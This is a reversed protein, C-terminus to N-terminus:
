VTFVAGTSKETSVMARFLEDNTAHNEFNTILMVKRDTQSYLLRRQWSYFHPGDGINRIYGMLQRLLVATFKVDSLCENAYFGEWKGHERSRLLGDASQYCEAAKGTLYFARMYEGRMFSEYAECFCVAGKLCMVHLKVQLSVSDLWLEPDNLLAAIEDCERELLAFDCLGDACKEWFWGIQGAFPIDGAAWQLTEVCGSTEGKMWSSCFARTTYAYFQEGAHEDEFEGYPVTCEAYRDYCDAMRSLLEPTLGRGYYRGTYEIKYAGADLGGNKWLMAVAELFYVHPKVNSCNVVLFDDAGNAFAGSLERSVFDASNPLMTIHNAAQLDYFSVHYYIGQPGAAREKDDPLAPVRPNHLDQRRSVMKGYGNDARVRITGDPLAIHGENYLEMVEGYLNACFVPDRVHAGVIEAQEKMISSILAGRSEPTKFRDDDLWFPRDGQGRFGLNWIVKMDKQALVGETWLVRFKEPHEGYSATLDPYARSFMEAGLPEAHHHSIWLGMDSAQRRHVRSNKDTGPIVMNGGLRLLAEFVMEWVTLNDGGANWTNILVEDNIFWGRYRVACSPSKIEAAPIEAQKRLTFKQDNWFWLPAVGLFKESIHNFAYIFGLDGGATILMESLNVSREASGSYEAGGFSILYEEDSMEGKELRIATDGGGAELTMALDRRLRDVGRRVPETLEMGGTIIRTNAYITFYREM